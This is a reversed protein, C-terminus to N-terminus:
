ALSSALSIALSLFSSLSVCSARSTKFFAIPISPLYFSVDEISRDFFIFFCMWVCRYRTYQFFRTPATWSIISIYLSFRWLGFFSPFLRCLFDLFYEFFRVLDVTRRFDCLHEVLFSDFCALLIHIGDHLFLPDLRLIDLMLCSRRNWSSKVFLEM